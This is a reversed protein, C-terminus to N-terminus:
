RTRKLIVNLTQLQKTNIIKYYIVVSYQNGNTNLTVDVNVINARPENIAACDIVANKIFQQEIESALEFTRFQVSSGILYDYPREKLVTLVLNELAQKVADENTVMALDGTHPSMDFNTSIDSFYVNPSKLRALNDALTLIPM